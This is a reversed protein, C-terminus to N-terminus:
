GEDESNSTKKTSKKKVPNPSTGGQAVEEIQGQDVEKIEGEIFYASSPWGRVTTLSMAEEESLPNALRGVLESISHPRKRPPIWYSSGPMFPLWDPASRRVIIRHIADELRRMGLMEGDSGDPDLDVEILHSKDSQNSRNRLNLLRSTPPSISPCNPSPFFSSSSSRILTQSLIRAM